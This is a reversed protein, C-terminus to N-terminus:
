QATNESLAPSGGMAVTHVEVVDSPKVRQLGNVVIRDGEKLGDSIVRLGDYMDGISVNRYQVRNSSDVILVFKKDQDTEVAADEVLFAQHPAGGGVKVRAYLGPVLVADTNDFRARVRITGSGNDLRNDVSDIRGERSYGKENALGLSVSVKEKSDKSLFQLYTREDADFSAYIPSVSVLTTLLPASAGTSVINGLTLEARSVRGSVPAVINTYALNIKAAELSAHATKLDASASRAANQAQDYDRKAIANDKLLREAREADTSAYGNRAQAAALQGEARDVEAIYPRPDITFLSDGKKVLSGDKFHVAVITGPVLPRIEVTDIAEIRGAYVQYDTITKVVVSAVDVQPHPAAVPAAASARTVLYDGHAKKYSLSIGLAVMLMVATLGWLTGRGVKM